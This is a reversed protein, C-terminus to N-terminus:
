TAANNVDLVVSISYQLTSINRQETSCAKTYCNVSKSVHKVELSSDYDMMTVETKSM